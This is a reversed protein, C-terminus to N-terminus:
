VAGYGSNKLYNACEAPAVQDLLEGITRWATEITRPEAKRLLHKLKAVVQEIPNLDPSYAPLYFLHAGAKRIQRRVSVQKHSGLNDLVVVDGARLTPVLIREVYLRFSEGNIPGDLVWPAEVRDHRLAAIFTLTRWHGHPVCAVLRQGRPGWGRLPAMNTKVWTEDLFVM